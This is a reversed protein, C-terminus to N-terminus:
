RFLFYVNFCYHFHYSFISTPIITNDVTVVTNATTTSFTTTSIADTSTIATTTEVTSTALTVIAFSIDSTTPTTTAISSCATHDTCVFYHLAPLLWMLM